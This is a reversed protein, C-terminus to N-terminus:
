VAHTSINEKIEALKIATNQEKLRKLRRNELESCRCSVSSHIEERRRIKKKNIKSRLKERDRQEELM